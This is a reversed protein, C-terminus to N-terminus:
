KKLKGVSELWLKRSCEAGVPLSLDSMAFRDWVLVPSLPRTPTGPGARSLRRPLGLHKWESIGTQSSLHSLVGGLSSSGKRWIFGFDRSLFHGPRGWSHSEPCHGCEVRWIPTFWWSNTNRTQAIHEDGPGPRNARPNSAWKERGKSQELGWHPVLALQTKWAWRAWFSRGSRWRVRCRGLLQTDEVVLLIPLFFKCEPEQGPNIPSRKKPCAQYIHM